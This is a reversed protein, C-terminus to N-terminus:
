DLGSAVMREFPVTDTAADMAAQTDIERMRLRKMLSQDFSYTGYSATGKELLERLRSSSGGLELWEALPRCGWAMETIPVVGGGGARVVMKQCMVLQLNRGLAAALAARREGSVAELCSTLLAATDNAEVTALVLCGGEALPVLQEIGRPQGIAGVVVVNADERIARDLGVSLSEVDTGVEVQSISARRDRYLFEIPDELIVIHHACRENIAEVIAALTTSKGARAGGGILVLGSDLKVLSLLERPLNLTELSPIELPIARLIITMGGYTHFLHARFRAVAGLGYSTDVAMGREFREWQDERLVKRAFASVAEGPVIEASLRVLEGDRRIWIPGGAKLHIDGLAGSQQQDLTKALLQEIEDM